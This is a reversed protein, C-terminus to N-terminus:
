RSAMPWPRTVSLLLQADVKAYITTTETSRHRLVAGIAALSVGDALLSTALSHRLVHSATGPLEVGARAATRTVITSLSPMKLAVYPARATVFVEDFDVQPRDLTLYSLIADGVDQPLPLAERRRAKGAVWIRAQRWDIDALHLSTVDGARLGLRALLLLMAYNRRGASTSRDCAELLKEVEAPPVHKPLRDSRWQAIKPVAGALGPSCLGRTAQFRLFMRVVLAYTQLRKRSLRPAQDLIFTRVGAAGYEGPDDGLASLFRILIPRYSGTLTPPQVRRHQLMWEEFGAISSPLRAAADPVPALLGERRLWGLFVILEHRARNFNTRGRGVYPSDPLAAVFSTVTATDIGDIPSGTDELWRSFASSSRLYLRATSDCFREDRLFAAFGDLYDAFPGSRLRARTSALHFYDDLM